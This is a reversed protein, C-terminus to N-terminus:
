QLHLQICDLWRHLLSWVHCAWCKGSCVSCHCLVTAGKLLPRLGSRKQTHRSGGLPKVVHWYFINKTNLLCAISKMPYVVQIVGEGQEVQHKPLSWSDSIYQWGLAM